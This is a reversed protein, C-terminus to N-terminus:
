GQSNSAGFKFYSAAYQSGASMAGNMASRAIINGMSPVHQMTGFNLRTQVALNRIQQNMNFADMIASEQVEGRARDLEVQIDQAAADVSAGKVGAAASAATAEGTATGAMRAAMALDSASQKRAQAGQLRINAISYAAEVANTKNQARIQRNKAKAMAQDQIGGFYSQAASMGFSLALAPLM